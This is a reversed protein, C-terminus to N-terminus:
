DYIWKEPIYLNHEYSKQTRIRPIDVNHQGEGGYLIELMKQREYESIPPFRDYTGASGRRRSM